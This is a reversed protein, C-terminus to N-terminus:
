FDLGVGAPSFSQLSNLLVTPPPGVYQSMMADDAAARGIMTRIIIGSGNRISLLPQALTVTTDWATRNYGTRAGGFGSDRVALPIRPVKAYTPIVVRSTSVTEPISVIGDTINAKDYLSYFTTPVVGGDDGAWYFRHTAIGV